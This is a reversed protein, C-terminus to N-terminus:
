TPRPFTGADDVPMGQVFVDTWFIKPRNTQVRAIPGSSNSFVLDIDANKLAKEIQRAYNDLALPRRDVVFTQKTLKAHLKHPIFMYRFGRHLPFIPTVRVGQRELNDLIARSTGSQANPDRADGTSVYAVKVDLM